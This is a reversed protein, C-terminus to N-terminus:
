PARGRASSERHWSSSPPPTAPPATCSAAPDRHGAARRHPRAPRTLSLPSCPVVSAAVLSAILFVLAAGVSAAHIHHANINVSYDELKEAAAEKIISPTEMISPTELNKYLCPPRARQTCHHSVSFLALRRRVLTIIPATGRVDDCTHIIPIRIDTRRRPCRVPRGSFGCPSKKEDSRPTRGNEEKSSSLRRVHRM